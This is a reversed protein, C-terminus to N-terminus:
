KLYKELIQRLACLNEPPAHGQVRQVKRLALAGVIRFLKRCM